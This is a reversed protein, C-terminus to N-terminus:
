EKFQLLTNIHSHVKIDEHHEILFNSVFKSQLKSM